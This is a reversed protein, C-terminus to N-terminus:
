ELRDPQLKIQVETWRKKRLYPWFINRSVGVELKIEKDRKDKPSFPVVSYVIPAVALKVCIDLNLISNGTLIDDLFYRSMEKILRSNLFIGPEIKLGKFPNM